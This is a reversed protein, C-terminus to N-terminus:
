PELNGCSLLTHGAQAGWALRGTRMCAVWEGAHGHGDVAAERRRQAHRGLGRGALLGAVRRGPPGPVAPRRGVLQGARSCAPLPPAAACFLPDAVRRAPAHRAASLAEAQQLPLLLCPAPLLLLLLPRVECSSPPGWWALSCPTSSPLWARWTLQCCSRQTVGRSSTTGAHASCAPPCRPPIPWMPPLAPPPATCPQMALLNCGSHDSMGAGSCRTGM